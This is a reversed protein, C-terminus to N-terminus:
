ASEELLRDLSVPFYDWCDVSVDLRVGLRKNPPIHRDGLKEKRGIKGHCHGHLHLGGHSSGDWSRMPWHCLVIKRKYYKITLLPPLIRLNEPMHHSPRKLDKIWRHDKDGPVISVLGNLQSFFEFFTSFGGLTFDGLHYVTDRRSVVSNWRKILERNMEEVSEFPRDCYKIIEDHNFHHDSTVYIM